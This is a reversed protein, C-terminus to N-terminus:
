MMLRTTRREMKNTGAGLGPGLLRGQQARRFADRECYVRGNMEFYDHKLSRKCDACTLCGPHFKQKRESELFQGEIGKDCATCISGNLKHYHRECYPRDNIVYFTSAQFPESCTACVFCHKHYRGTLRGDASSVSKGTIAQGCGKCNGKTATTRRVPKERTNNGNPTQARPSKIPQLPSIRGGNQIAPDMPSEPGLMSSKLLPPPALSRAFQEEVKPPSSSTLPQTPAIGLMSSQLGSMLADLNTSESPQRPSRGSGVSLPPSSRSSAKSEESYGSADSSQSDTPTHYPNGIGFEAALNLNFPVPPADGLRADTRPRIISAGRPPLPRSLDPGSIAQGSISQKRKAPGPDTPRRAPPQSPIRAPFTQSRDEPRLPQPESDEPPPGFGGYGNNRPVKPAAIGSKSSVSSMTSSRSHGPGPGATSPRPISGGVEATSTSMTPDRLNGLTAQRQHGRGAASDPAQRRGNVDFPGPAITNMRQLLGGSSVMRPSVPAYMPDVDPSGNGTRLYEPDQKPRSQPAAKTPFPPFACDLNSSLIEPSPPRRALPATASRLPRGFPSRSRDIPSMTRSPSDSRPTLPSQSFYPRNAASTDVKPPIARAPNLFGSGNTPNRNHARGSFSKDPPPTAAGNCVHEGLQSIEIDQACMSCKITPLFSSPRATDAM